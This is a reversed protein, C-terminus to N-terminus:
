PVKLRAVYGNVFGFYSENGRVNPGGSIVALRAGIKRAILESTAKPYYGEQIMLRVGNSKGLGIVHAVHGPSPSIGPKPEVHTIIEFGLWDAVYILSEHYAIVRQGKVSALEKEWHARWKELKEIFATANAQYSGAHAPDLEAMRKAIGRAVQVVRRPDYMYHPNGGPHVDGQSRDVKGKVAGLLTVLSSADLRGRAGKQVRGNRCATLLTPLWGQELGLGVRVLLDARSLELALNPRTDVFHPDQTPLSLSEIRANGGGVAQAVSALSPTTAVVRLEARAVSCLSGVIALAVLLCKMHIYGIHM